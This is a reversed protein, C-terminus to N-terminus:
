PTWDCTKAGPATWVGDGDGDVFVPNVIVRPVELADYDELGRPMAEEGVALVVVYHDGTVSLPVVTDLKVVGTPDTAPLVAYADCDVIVHVATVDIDPIAQVTIALDAEGDTVTVTEGPGAGDVTVRAFAGASIQAAGDLTADALEDVTFATDDAVAVYTRPTGPTEMGHVDTVGVGTVAHGLNFFAFWDYLAGSHRTDDTLYPSRLGNEVEFADFDWSWVQDGPSLGLAEPDDTAPPDTMRDWDLLCLIGCEGNVRSHNLQVVTAGRAREAAYIDGFGLGYWRVPDGRVDDVVPFPWANTHEPM